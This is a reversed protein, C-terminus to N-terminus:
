MFNSSDICISCYFSSLLPFPPISRFSIPLNKDFFKFKFRFKVSIMLFIKIYDYSALQNSLINCKRVGDTTFDSLCVNIEIFRKPEM